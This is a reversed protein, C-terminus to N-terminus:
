KRRVIRVSDILRRMITGTVTHMIVRGGASGTTAAAAAAAAAASTRSHPMCCTCALKYIGQECHNEHGTRPQPASHKRQAQRRRQQPVAGGGGGGSCPTVKHHQDYRSVKVGRSERCSVARIAAAGARAWSTSGWRRKAQGAEEECQMAYFHTHTRQLDPLQEQQTTEGRCRPLVIAIHNQAAVCQLGSSSSSEAVDSCAPTVGGRITLRLALAAQSYHLPQASSLRTATSVNSKVAPMRMM